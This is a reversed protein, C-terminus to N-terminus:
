NIIAGEQIERKSASDVLSSLAISGSGDGSRSFVTDSRFLVIDIVSSVRAKQPQCSPKHNHVNRLIRLGIRASSYVLVVTRPSVHVRRIM